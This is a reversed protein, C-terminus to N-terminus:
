PICLRFIGEEWPRPSASRRPVRFEQLVGCAFEKFSRSLEARLAHAAVGGAAELGLGIRQEGRQDDGGGGESCGERGSTGTADGAGCSGVGGRRHDFTGGEDGEERLPNVARFEMEEAIDGRRGLLGGRFRLDKQLLAAGGVDFAEVGEM